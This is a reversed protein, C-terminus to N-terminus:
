RGAQIALVVQVVNLVLLALGGFVALVKGTDKWWQSFLQHRARGFRYEDMM